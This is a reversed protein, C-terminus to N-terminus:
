CDSLERKQCTHVQVEMSIRSTHLHPVKNSVCLLGALPSTHVSMGGARNLGEPEEVGSSWVHMETSCIM